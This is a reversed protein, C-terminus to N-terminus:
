SQAEMRPPRLTGLRLKLSEMGAYLRSKVTSLPVQVIASIEEFTLDQFFKLEVVAKQEPSLSQLARHVQSKREQRLLEGDHAYTSRLEWSLNVGSDRDDLSYHIGPPRRRMRSICRNVAIRYVWTSFKADHRFKRINQYAAMFVEQAMEAAEEPDQLMRLALNYVSREWKLVLRNFALADGRQSAAVWVAEQSDPYAGMDAGQQQAQVSGANEETL